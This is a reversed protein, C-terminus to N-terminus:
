YMGLKQAEAVLEDLGRHREAEEQEKYRLLDGLLVRRRPGVLRYPIKGEELLKVFYPRSVKLFNAAQQTTVETDTALVVVNKGRGLERLIASLLPLSADPLLLEAKEGGPQEVGVRLTAKEFPVKKKELLHQLAVSTAEAQRAEDESLPKNSPQTLTQM